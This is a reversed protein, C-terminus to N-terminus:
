ESNKNTAADIMEMLDMDKQVHVSSSIPLVDGALEEFVCSTDDKDFDWGDLLFQLGDTNDFVDDNMYHPQPQLQPQLISQEAALVPAPTTTLNLYNPIIYNIIDDNNNNGSSSETFPKKQNLSQIYSLLLPSPTGDRRSKRNQQFSSQRRRNTNWHNKIANETRGPMRKAIEVWRNGVEAHAQILIMDEEETWSGTKIDPRLHNHWRERCQKGIRGKLMRAILAWKKLGHKEVLEILMRDEETTWQGKVPDSKKQVQMDKNKDLESEADTRAEEHKQNGVVLNPVNVHGEQFSKNFQAKIFSDIPTHSSTDIPQLGGSSAVPIEM